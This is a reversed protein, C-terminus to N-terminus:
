TGRGCPALEQQRCSCQCERGGQGRRAHHCSGRRSRGCSSTRLQRSSRCTPCSGLHSDYTCSQTLLREWLHSFCYALGLSTEGVGVHGCVLVVHCVEAVERDSEMKGVLSTKGTGVEDRATLFRLRRRSAGGRGSGHGGAEGRTMGHWSDGRTVSRWSSRTAM